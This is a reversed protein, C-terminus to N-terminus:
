QLNIEENEQNEQVNPEILETPETNELEAQAKKRHYNERKSALIQKYREGNEERLKNYRIRNYENVKERNKERYKRIARKQCELM